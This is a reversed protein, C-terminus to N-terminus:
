AAVARADGNREKLAAEVVAELIKRHEKTITGSRELRTLLSDPEADVLAAAAATLVQAPTAFGAQAALVGVILDRDQV